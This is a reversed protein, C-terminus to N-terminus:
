YSLLSDFVFGGAACLCESSFVANKVQPSFGVGCNMKLRLSSLGNCVM